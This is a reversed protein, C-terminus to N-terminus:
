ATAAVLSFQEAQRHRWTALAAIALNGVLAAATVALPAWQHIPVYYIIWMVLCVSGVLWSAVSVGADGPHRVLTTIQPVRNAVMAVGTGIVGARWGLAVTPVLCCCAIFLSSRVMTARQELPRLRIVLVIMMPLCVLNGVILPAQATALGYCLWFVGMLAFQYWTTLSIGDVSVDRARRLQVWTSAVGLTAGLWGM